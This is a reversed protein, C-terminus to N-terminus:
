EKSLTNIEALEDNTYRGQIYYGESLLKEYIAQPGYGSATLSSIRDQKMPYRHSLYWPPRDGLLEIQRIYYARKYRSANSTKWSIRKSM